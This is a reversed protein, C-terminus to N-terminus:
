GKLCATIRDLEEPSPPGAWVLVVNRTRLVRDEVGPRDTGFREYANQLGIADDRSAGFVIVVENRGLPARLAGGPATNAVFDKVRTTVPIDDARM